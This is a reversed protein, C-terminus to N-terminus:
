PNRTNSNQKHAISRTNSASVSLPEFVLMIVISMLIGTWAIWQFPALSRAALAYGSYGVFGLRKQIDLLVFVYAMLRWLNNVAVSSYVVLLHKRRRYIGELRINIATMVMNPLFYQLSLPISEVVRTPSWYLAIWPACFVVLLEVTALTVFLIRQPRSQLLDALPEVKQQWMALWVWYLVYCGLALLSAGAVLSWTAQTVLLVDRPALSTRMGGDQVGLTVLMRPINAAKERKPNLLSNTSPSPRSSQLQRESLKRPQLPECFSLRM